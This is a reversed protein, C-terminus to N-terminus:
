KDDNPESKEIEAFIRNYLWNHLVVAGFGTPMILLWWPNHSYYANQIGLGITLIVALWQQYRPRVSEFNDM